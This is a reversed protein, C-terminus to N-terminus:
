QTIMFIQHSLMQIQDVLISAATLAITILNM